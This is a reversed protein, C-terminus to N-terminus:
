VVKEMSPFLAYLNESPSYIKRKLVMNDASLLSNFIEEKTVKLDKKEFGYKFEPNNSLNKHFYSCSRNKCEIGKKYFICLKTRGYSAM